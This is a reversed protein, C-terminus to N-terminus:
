ESVTGFIQATSMVAIDYLEVASLHGSLLQLNHYLGTKITGLAGIEVPV